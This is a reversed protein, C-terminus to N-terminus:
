SLAYWGSDGTVDAFTGDAGDLGARRPMRNGADSADRRAAEVAPQGGDSRAAGEVVPRSAVPDLSNNM